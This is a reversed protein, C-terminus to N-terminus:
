VRIEENRERILAYIARKSCDGMLPHDISATFGRIAIGSVSFLSSAIEDASFRKSQIFETSAATDKAFSIAPDETMLGSDPKISKKKTRDYKGKRMQPHM